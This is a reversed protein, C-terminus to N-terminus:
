VTREKAGFLDPKIRGEERREEAAQRRKGLGAM